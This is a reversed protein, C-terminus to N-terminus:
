SWYRAMSLFARDLFSPLPFQRLEQNLVELSVYGDFGSAGIVTAFRELDLTGEGPMVRRQMTEEWLDGSEPPPADDFQIYAIREAPLGELDAWTSPGFSFHWTDILVAAGSGALEAVEVAEALGPLSGLPSFEVAMASGAEAFITACRAILEATDGSPAARFVTNVWRAAMTEAAGAVREAEAVTRAADGTIVLALVEHCALGAADYAARAGETVWGIPIGLGVFGASRVAPVLADVDVEWRSDPTLALRVSV